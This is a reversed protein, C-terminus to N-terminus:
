ATGRLRAVVQEITRRSAADAIQGQRDHEAGIHADDEYREPMGPTGFADAQAAWRARWAAPTADPAPRHAGALWVLAWARPVVRYADYGGGGTALWRGEAHRHAIEDVIRAAAGM